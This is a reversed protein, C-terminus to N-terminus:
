EEIAAKAMMAGRMRALIEEPFKKERDYTYIGNKEQEVDYLQTYCLACIGPHELLVKALGCYRDAFEEMTKPANGYGWGSEQQENWLIGGYESVFYPQGQYWQRNPFNNFVPGGNKMPEYHSAFKEVNQEYDHVDFIDTVVHYNGSTDIVPRTRDIAKTAYYIGSLVRNNQARGHYDWTENYPCWGVLAPSNYDREVAEIWPELMVGLADARSHDLGWNGYEGWVMYGLRDAWYLYRREFVREHLRAGNFGMAMSLEIDKKLDEDRPATYIGDRYFGQDLILRQFVPKGNILIAKDSLTVSRMGFYGTVEDHSGDEADLTFSLDYLEPACPEWLHCESVPIEVHVVKGSSKRVARGVERGQYTVVATLTKSGSGDLQIELHVCSNDIDSDCRYSKICTKPVFEMWVTQWIGTTRTYDCGHSHYAESQKGRPQMPDRCDDEAYVTIINDGAQVASTIEFCFATYGGTHRGVQKGNVWVECFHDVAEFHLLIRQDPDLRDLTVTRKYWVANMFDKYEIGSLKSEPCFPVLIRKELHEANQLGRERGTRGFDFAFEWEGNLNMWAGRYMQPRPYESRPISM